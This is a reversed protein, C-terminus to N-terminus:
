ELPEGPGRKYGARPNRPDNPIYRHQEPATHNPRLRGNPFTPHTFDIDRIPVKGPGSERAKYIRGSVPDRQLVTHPNDGAAPDPGAIKGPQEGEFVPTGDPYRSHIPRSPAATTRGAAPEAESGPARQAPEPQPTASGPQAASTGPEAPSTEVPEEVLPTDVIGGPPPTSSPVSGGAPPTDLTPPANPDQGPVPDAPTTRGANPPTTGPAKGGGGEPTGGGETTGGEPAGGTGRGAWWERLSKVGNGIATAIEGALSRMGTWARAMVGMEAWGPIGGVPRVYVGGPPGKIATRAGLILGVLTVAGLVGRETREAVGIHQGTVIDKGAIGEYIGTIGVTDALAVLIATGPRGQLEAQGLWQVLALVLSAALLIAGAIMIATWATLIVGFAAAIAAVVLAVVVLVVLGVAIKVIARGLGAWFGDDVQEAAERARTNVDDTKPRTGEEVAKDVAKALARNHDASMRALEGRADQCAQEAQALVGDIVRQQQARLEDIIGKADEARSAAAADAAQAFGALIRDLAPGAEATASAAAAAFGSSTRAFQTDAGAAADALKARGQDALAGIQDTAAGVQELIGPLFPREPEELVTTTETVTNAIEADIAEGAAVLEAGATAVDAGLASLAAGAAATLQDRTADVAADIATRDSAARTDVAALAGALGDRVAAEAQDAGSRIQDVMAREAVDLQTAVKNAYQVARESHETAKARLEPRIQPNKERIDAASERGVKLAAARQDPAPDEEGPFRSAEQEGARECDAAAAELEAVARAAQSDAAALARTGEAEGADIMGQRKAAMAQQAEAVKAATTDRVAAADAEVQARIEAKKASAADALQARAALARQELGGLSSGLSAEIEANRAAGQAAIAARHTGVDARVEARHQEGAVQLAAIRDRAEAAKQDDTREDLLDAEIAEVPPTTPLQARLEDPAPTAVLGATDTAPSAPAALAGLDAAQGAGPAPPAAGGPAAPGAGARGPPVPAATAAGTTAPAAPVAPPPAGAGGAPAGDVLAAGVAEAIQEHAQPSAHEADASPRAAADAPAPEPQAPTPEPAAAGAPILPPPEPEAEPILVNRGSSSKEVAVGPITTAEAIEADIVETGVVEAVRDPPVSGPGAIRGDGAGNDGDRRGEGVAGDPSVERGGSQPPADRDAVLRAMVNAGEGRRAAAALREAAPGAAGAVGAQRAASADASANAAEGEAETEKAAAPMEAPHADVAAVTGADRGRECEEAAPADPQEEAVMAPASLAGDAASAARARAAVTMASATGIAAPERAEPALDAAPSREILRGVPADGPRIQLLQGNTQLGGDHEQRRSAASARLAAALEDDGPPSCAAAAFPRASGDPATTPARRM